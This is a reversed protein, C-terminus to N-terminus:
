SLIRDQHNYGRSDAPTPERFAQFVNVPILDVMKLFKASSIGLSAMRAKLADTDPVELEPSSSFRVMLLDALYVIHVLDSDIGAQEPRHHHRVVDGLAPPIRWEKALLEGVRTHDTRFISNEVELIPLIEEQTKRYFLPYIATIHQDLVVKGIDHLLGATYARGPETRHTIQALREAVTATGIAHYYLGGKCLSYGLDCQDFYGQLAASIVLKVLLEQGLFVLAHDLSDIRAHKSFTAANAMSITKASIVQDQRVERAVQQIDYDHAEIIRLVKLAVQPIPKLQHITEKIGDTTPLVVKGNQDAQRYGAPEIDCLLTLMNLSLCCTFFGGTESRVVAIGAKDLAEQVKEATRGGIDLSLDTRNIPGVLAGGAIWAKLREKRAGAQLLEEIFLPMGTTAYKHPCPVQTATTPEPLLLHIIGGVGASEDIMAVGVCTGLFAQLVTAERVGVVSTGAGVHFNKLTRM